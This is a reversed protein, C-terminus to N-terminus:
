SEPDTDTNPKVISEDWEVTISCGCGAHARPPQSVAVDFCDLVAKCKHGATYNDNSTRQIISPFSLMLFDLIFANARSEGINCDILRRELRCISNQTAPIYLIAIKMFMTQKYVGGIWYGSESCYISVAFCNKPAAFSIGNRGTNNGKYRAAVSLM